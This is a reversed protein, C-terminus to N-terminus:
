SHVRSFLSFLDGEFILLGYPVHEGGLVRPSIIDNMETWDLIFPPWTYQVGGYKNYTTYVSM